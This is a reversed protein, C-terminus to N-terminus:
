KIDAYERIADFQPCAKWNIGPKLFDRHGQIKANPFQRKLERLLQRLQQKQADTRDDSFQGGIYSVHIANANHGAVGNATRTVDQLQVVNGNAEIAYHYGPNKWGLTDRWYRQISEIRTSHGTATCHVVIFRIQRM